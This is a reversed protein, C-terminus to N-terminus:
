EINIRTSPFAKTEHGVQTRFFLVVFWYTPLEVREPRVM